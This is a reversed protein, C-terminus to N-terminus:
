AVGNGGEGIGKLLINNELHIHQFLDGELEVLQDYLRLFTGCADLPPCYDDALARMQKLVAGAAEHEAIIVAALETADATNGEEMQPFLLVEEKVLHQELDTRLKGFLGHLEFLAPHHAAHAKLVKAFVEGIHPLAERLYSHHREEIYNTLDGATMHLFYTHKRQAQQDVLADLAAAIEGADIGLERLVDGLRRHGGCCFDIKRARFLDAAQPLHAVTEGVTNEIWNRNM